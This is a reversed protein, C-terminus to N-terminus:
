RGAERRADEAAFARDIFDLVDARRYLVHRGVRASRPGTGRTRHAYLTSNPVRLLAAVEDITLYEPAGDKTPAATNSKTGM